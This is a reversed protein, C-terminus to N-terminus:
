RTGARAPAETPKEVPPPGAELFQRYQKDLEAFSSGALQPLTSPTDRGTYVAALYAVLADRYRGGDYHVLFNALGAAQSYFTRIRKDSQLREMGYSCFESLPVYFDDVLLRHRADQMRVDDFGGLVLFGDERRLTEMYMAVGEIIWFNARSGADPVVPRPAQHFLQHTAEHYITRDAQGKEAFFYAQQAVASYVGESMAVVDKKWEPFATTLGNVYEERDRFYVVRLPQLQPRRVRGDFLEAVEAESAFYRIFLEKWVRHLQELKGGLRVGGELSENTLIKYHETAVVWGNRIERHLRADEEARVWGKPSLREGQQYRRLDRAAVWGFKEDWVQGSRLKGVEYGTYWAGRYKQYGLIRRIREHDPDERIAALVLEFALSARDARVAKRAQMELAKAQQRRLQWFRRDWEVVDPPSDAPLEPRGATQPLDAIYLKNPDRKGMWRLTIKAQVALGKSDCWAALDKLQAVYKSRLEAAAGALEDAGAQGALAAWLCAALVLRGHRCAWEVIRNPATQLSQILHADEATQTATGEPPGHSDVEEENLTRRIATRPFV